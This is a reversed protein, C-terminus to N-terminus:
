DYQERPFGYLKVAARFLMQRSLDLGIVRGAFDDQELLTFPLRATGTAVDLVLPEPVDHLRLLIPRAIFFTEYTHDNDKIRDYRHAYLDYLWVVIRWGLYVGESKILLAWAVVGLLAVGIVLVVLLLFSM